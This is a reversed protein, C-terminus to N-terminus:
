VPSSENLDTVLDHYLDVPGLHWMKTEEKELQKYTDSSYVAKIADILSVNNEAKLMSAMWSVKSPLLLYLNDQTIEGIM